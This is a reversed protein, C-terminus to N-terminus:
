VGEKLKPIIELMSSDWAGLTDNQIRWASRSWHVGLRKRRKLGSIEVRDGGQMEGKSGFIEVGHKDKRGTAVAATAPDPIRITVESLALLLDSHVLDSPLLFHDGSIQYYWGVWEKGEKDIWRIKDM